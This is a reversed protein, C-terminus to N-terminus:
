RGVTPKDGCPCNIVLDSEPSGCATYHFIYTDSSTYELIAACNTCTVRKKAKEDYGVVTVM